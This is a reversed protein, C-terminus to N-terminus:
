KTQERTKANRLLLEIVEAVGDGHGGATVMDVTEKLSPVANSVAVSYGCIRLFASDNEADGIGLVESPSLALPRLAARLGSAKDVGRPLIMLAGKNRIIQLDLKLEDIVERVEKEHPGWTAVIANGTHLPMRREYLRAVLSAPPPEVLTEIGGGNPHYLVAGNEMVALDFLFFNPFISALDNLERGTVLILRLGAQKLRELAILTPDSVTGNHALTGDFDTALARINLDSLTKM